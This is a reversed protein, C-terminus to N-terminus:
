PRQPGGGGGRGGGGGGGGGRSMQRIQSKLNELMIELQTLDAGTLTRIRMAVSQNSRVMGIIRSLATKAKQLDSLTGRGM